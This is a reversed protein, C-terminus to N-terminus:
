CNLDMVNGRRLIIVTSWTIEIREVTIADGLMILFFFIFVIVLQRAITRFRNTASGTHYLLIGEQQGQSTFTTELRREKHLM